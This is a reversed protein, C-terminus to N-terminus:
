VKKSHKEKRDQHLVIAMIIIAGIGLVGFLIYLLQPGQM